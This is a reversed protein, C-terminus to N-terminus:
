AGPGPKYGPGGSAVVDPGRERVWARSSVWAYWCVWRLWLFSEIAFAVPLPLRPSTAHRWIARHTRICPDATPFLLRWSVMASPMPREFLVSNLGRRLWCWRQKINNIRINNIRSM